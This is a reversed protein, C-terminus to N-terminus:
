EPPGKPYPQKLHEPLREPGILTSLNEAERVVSARGESDILVIAPRYQIFQMWQTNNYAGHSPTRVRSGLAKARVRAFM